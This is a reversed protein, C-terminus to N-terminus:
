DSPVANVMNDLFIAGDTVVLEGPRLGDVIQVEGNESMGTRIVRQTFHKRDTTVWATMTGDGERVVGNVPVAPAKVPRSVEIIVTALMGVRLEHRPDSVECRVAERHIAPDVIAYIRRIKGDFVRGPWAAVKVRVPQGARLLPIDSEAVDALVWAADSSKQGRLGGSGAPVAAGTGNMNGSAIMQNIEGDTVGLVRVADRATQLAAQASEENAIDQELESRAIGKAPYLARARVLQNSDLIFTAAAGLLTSEAQVESPDKEFCVSGLESKEVPFSCTEVRGIKIANM